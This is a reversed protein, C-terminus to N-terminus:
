VGALFKRRDVKMKEMLAKEERITLIVCTVITAPLAGLPSPTSRRALWYYPLRMVSAGPPVLHFLRADAVDIGRGDGVRGHQRFEVTAPAFARRPGLALRHARM